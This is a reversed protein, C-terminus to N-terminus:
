PQISSSSERFLRLAVGGFILVAGVLVVWLVERRRSRPAALMEAGGLDYPAGLTADRIRGQDGDRLNALVADIPADASSVRGSGYALTYPGDGRAVFLLEQPYWGLKLRPPRGGWGGDRATEVTWYREDTRSISAPASALRTTAETLTYFLGSHRTRLEESPDARSSVTVHAADTADAFELDVREVPFHGGTDYSVDGPSGPVPAPTLIEWRPEVSPASRQPRVQVSTLGAAQLERPWWLRLYRARAGSLEINRQTITFSGQRMQAVAVAPQLTRWQNLDDSGEVRVHGLFGADERAQWDLQLGALPEKVSSVDVLYSTLMEGAARNGSVEVVAGQRDIRVQASTGLGAAAKTYMPFIPVSVLEEKVASTSAVRRITTPVPTGSANFVRLDELNPQRTTLYVDRPLMVRFIAGGADTSVEIGRAFDRPGTQARMSATVLLVILATLIRSM